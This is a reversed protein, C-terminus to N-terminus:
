ATVMSWHYVPRYIDANRGPVGNRSRRECTKSCVYHRGLRFLATLRRNYYSCSPPKTENQPRM